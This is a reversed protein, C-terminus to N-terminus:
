LCFAIRKRSKKIKGLLKVVYLIKIAEASNDGLGEEAQFGSKINYVGPHITQSKDGFGFVVSSRQMCGGGREQLRAFTGIMGVAGAQYQCDTAFFEKNVLQRKFGLVIHESKEFNIGICANVGVALKKKFFIGVPNTEINVVTKKDLFVDLVQLENLGQNGIDLV